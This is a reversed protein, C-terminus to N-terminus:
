KKYLKVRGDKIVGRWNLGFGFDYINGESDKHCEMDHPVDEAQKEVTSMNAPMQIPLLASPEKKGSIIDFIAQDQVKFNVLIGEVEKEFENFVMPNEMSVSVIVPKGKMKAKTELIMDLDTSNSAKITKGKYSRNTSAELPDGGAISTERAETATYEKYQLSIPLYGNGGKELDAKDYGIGSAPNNVFVIACDAENPNDTVTFYKKVINLNVPYELSEPTEM